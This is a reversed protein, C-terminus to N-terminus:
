SAQEVLGGAFIEGGFLIVPKKKYKVFENPYANFTFKGERQNSSNYSFQAMGQPAAALAFVSDLPEESETGDRIVTGRMVSAIASDQQGINKTFVFGTPTGSIPVLDFGQMVVDLIELSTERLTAEIRAEVGTIVRDLAKTGGQATTLEAKEIEMFIDVSGNGELFLEEDDPQDNFGSPLAANMYLNMPGLELKGGFVSNTGM